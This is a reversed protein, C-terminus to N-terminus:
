ENIKIEYLFYFKNTLTELIMFVYYFFDEKIVLTMYNKNINIQILMYEAYELQLFNLFFIFKHFIEHFELRSGCTYNYFEKVRLM